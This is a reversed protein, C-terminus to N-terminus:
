ISDRLPTTLKAWDGTLVARVFLTLPVKNKRLANMRRFRDLRLFCNNIMEANMTKEIRM